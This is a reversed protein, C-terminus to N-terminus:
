KQCSPCFSSTRGGTKMSQIITGCKKCAQGKRGYVFHHKGMSGWSGDTRVFDGVSSGKARIGQRLVPGIQAYVADLESLKLSGVLRAPQIQAHFLIEDSYINGIGAVVEADLLTDKIKRKPYKKIAALFVERSFSKALPEPGFRQLERVQSIEDDHVLKLYGFQRVDNFYLTGGSLEFVARTHKGPLKVLPANKKNLLRYSGGTKIRLKPDEFIFQGTMKLHVLMSWPGSLDFILLKARRKVSLIKQGLAIQIFKRVLAADEGRKPPLTKPGISVMKGALIKVSLITQNKLKRNLESAVTQVEPLEPM